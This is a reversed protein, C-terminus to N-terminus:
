LAIRDRAEVVEGDDFLALAAAQAGWWHDGYRWVGRSALLRVVDEYTRPPGGPAQLNARIRDLDLRLLWTMPARFMAAAPRIRWDPGPLKKFVQTRRDTRSRRHLRASGGSGGGAVGRRVSVAAGPAEAWGGPAVPRAVELTIDGARVDEAADVGVLDFMVGNIGGTYSTYNDRSVERGSPAGLLPRKDAAIARDDDANASPDRGDFTATDYAIFQDATTNVGYFVPLLLDFLMAGDVNPLPQRAAFLNNREYVKSGPLAQISFQSGTKTFGVQDPYIRQFTDASTLVGDAASDYVAVPGRGSFDFDPVLFVATSRDPSRRMIGGNSGGGLDQRLTVAGTAPNYERRTTASGSTGGVSFIVKGNAPIIVDNATYEGGFREFPVVSAAGTDADLRIARSTFARCPPRRDRGASV